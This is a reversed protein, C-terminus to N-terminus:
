GRESREHRRKAFETIKTMHNHVRSASCGIEEAIEAQRMKLPGYARVFVEGTFGQFVDALIEFEDAWDVPQEYDTHDILEPNCDENIDTFLIPQDKTFFSLERRIMNWCCQGMYKRRGEVDGPFNPSAFAIAAGHLSASVIDGAFRRYRRGVARGFRAAYEILEKQEGQTV